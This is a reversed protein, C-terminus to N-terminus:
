ATGNLRPDKRIWNSQLTYVYVELEKDNFEKDLQVKGLKFWELLIQNIDDRICPTIISSVDLNKKPSLGRKRLALSVAKFVANKPSMKGRVLMKPKFGRSDDIIVRKSSPNPQIIHEADQCVCQELDKGGSDIWDLQHHMMNLLDHLKIDRNQSLVTCAKINNHAKVDHEQITTSGLNIDTYIKLISDSKKNRLIWSPFVLLTTDKYFTPEGLVKHLNLYSFSFRGLFSLSEEDYLNDKYSLVELM